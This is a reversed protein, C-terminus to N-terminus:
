PAVLKNRIAYRILAATSTVNLKNKAAARHTEITKVSLNLINSMDKNSHGEAILQVIARERPSLVAEARSHRTSLFSRLLAQSVRGIFFPQHNALSAVASILHQKADSKLLYARAGARLLEDVLVESDHITFILIEATSVRARVARTVEMGNTLPLSCDVIAVDPKTEVAKAIAEKGDAAEAVVEWGAQTELISRLGSRVVEHDDAILIRTVFAGLWV